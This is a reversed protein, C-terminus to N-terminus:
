FSEKKLTRFTKNINLVVKATKVCVFFTGTQQSLNRLFSFSGKQLFIQFSPIFWWSLFTPVNVNNKNPEYLNCFHCNDVYKWYSAYQGSMSRISADAERPPTPTPTQEQPPRSPPPPGPRPPDPRTGPPPPTTDWCASLCVGGGTSLIVSAQLFMVKAWSRQPRYVYCSLMETPHRGGAQPWLVHKLLNSCTELSLWWIDSAPPTDRYLSTGHRSSASYLSTWDIMPLPWM